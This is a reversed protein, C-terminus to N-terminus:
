TNNVPPFSRAAGAPPPYVKTITVVIQHPPQVGAPLPEVEIKYIDGTKRILTAIANDITPMGSQNASTTMAVINRPDNNPGWFRNAILHGRYVYTTGMGTWGPPNVSPNTRARNFPLGVASMVRRNGAVTFPVHPAIPPVGPSIVWSKGYDKYLRPVASTSGAKEVMIGFDYDQGTKVVVGVQTVVAAQDPGSGFKLLIPDHVKVNQGGGFAFHRGLAALKQELSNLGNRCAETYAQKLQAQNPPTAQGYGPPRLAEAQGRLQDSEKILKGIETHLQAGLHSSAPSASFIAAYQTELRQLRGNFDDFGNSAMLVHAHPPAIHVRLTHHEPGIDVGRDVDIDSGVPEGAKKTEKAKEKDKGTLKGWAAKGWAIIKALAADIAKDVFDRIGKVARTAREPLDGLRLLRALFAIVIPIAQGLAQEIKNAAAGIAGAAIEAVSNLVSNIFEIIRSAEEIIFMVTDYIALLAAVFAGVPNFMMLIKKIAATVVAKIIMDRLANLMMDKLGALDAQIKDWLAAPNQMLLRVYEVLKEVVTVATPGMLKVAKARIHEYTIGVIQLILKFISAPSFDSPPTIGQEAVSRFLWDLLGKVLYYEIKAKFQDFGQKLADLLNSLFGIPDAIIQKIVAWGKRLASMLKDKFELIIKVIEVLKDIFKQILGKNADQIEKLAKDAKAFADKYKQALSQALENKKDDITRTLETFQDAVRKQAELGVGKLKPKLSGVYTKIEAQGAAVLAKAERLRLEVLNAVRVVVKDMLGAFLERGEEYFVNAEKPLGKFKDRLWRAKGRLGSYREDKYDDIRQEVYDKMRTLAAETGQDFITNVEEDLAALKQEVNQKTRSYIAEIHDAVAQREQEDKKKADAQKSSVGARSKAKGHLMRTANVKASSTAQAVATALVGKEATRFQKPATDAQKAVEDKASLVASFRPDNAKQLQPKTVEADAMAAETDDKSDQLSVDADSKPQPMGPGANVLPSPPAPEGPIPTVPKAQITSEDPTQKTKTATDGTAAQKQQAVNGKLSNKLAPADDGKMFDSTEALTKPMAKQIEARLLALFTDAEPKKTKADKIKETQKDKAGARKENAPGKAAAQAEDAKKVPAPHQRIRGAKQRLDGMVKVFRPDAAPPTPPKLRRSLSRLAIPM